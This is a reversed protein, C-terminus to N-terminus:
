KLAMVLRLRQQKSSFFRTRDKNLFSQPSSSRQFKIECVDTESIQSFLRLNAVFHPSVPPFLPPLESHEASSRRERLDCCVVCGAASYHGCDCFAGLKGEIIPSILFGAGVIFRLCFAPLATPSSATCGRTSLNHNIRLLPPPPPPDNPPLHTKPRWLSATAASSTWITGDQDQKEVLAVDDGWNCVCLVYIKPSIRKLALCVKMKLKNLGLGSHNQSLLSISLLLLERSQYKLIHRQNEGLKKELSARKWDSMQTEILLHDM